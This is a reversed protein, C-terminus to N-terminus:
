FIADRLVMGRRIFKNREGDQVLLKLRV